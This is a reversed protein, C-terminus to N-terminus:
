TPETGIISLLARIKESLTSPNSVEIIKLGAAQASAKGAASDEFAVGSSVAMRHMATLYPQPDPKAKDVDELCVITKFHRILESGQLLAFTEIRTSSTVLAMDFNAISQFAQVTEPHIPSCQKVLASFITRKTALIETLQHQLLKTEAHEALQPLIEMDSRGLGEREYKAWTLDIGLPLLAIRWAQWHQPESDAITGDLDFFLTVPMLKARLDRGRIRM